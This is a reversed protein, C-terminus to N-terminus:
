LITVTKHFFIKENELYRSLCKKKEKETEKERRLIIQVKPDGLYPIRRECKKWPWRVVGYLSYSDFSHFYINCPYRNWVCPTVFGSTHKGCPLKISTRWFPIRSRTPTYSTWVTKKMSFLLCRRCINFNEISSRRRDKVFIVYILSIQLFYPLAANM